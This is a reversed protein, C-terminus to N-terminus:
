VTLGTDLVTTTVYLTKTDTSTKYIILRDGVKAGTSDLRVVRDDTLTVNWNHMTLDAVSLVDSEDGHYEYVPDDTPPRIWPVSPNDPIGQLYDQPHRPEWCKKCVYLEDWTKKLKSAKFKFGCRDCEANWDGRKLYNAGM